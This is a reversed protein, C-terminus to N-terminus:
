ESEGKWELISYIICGSAIMSIIVDSVLYGVGHKFFILTIALLLILLYGRKGCRQRWSFDSMAFGLGLLLLVNRVHLSIEHLPMLSHLFDNLYFSLFLFQIDTELAAEPQAMYIRCIIYGTLLQVAWFLFLIMVHYITWLFFVNKESVQLRRITYQIKSGGYECEPYLLIMCLVVLSIGFILAMGNSFIMPESEWFLFIYGKAQRMRVYFFVLQAAASAALLAIVKYISSRAALMMISIYKKM